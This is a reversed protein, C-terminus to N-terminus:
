VAAARLAAAILQRLEGRIQASAQALGDRAKQPAILKRESVEFAQMQRQLRQREENGDATMRSVHERIATEVQALVIPLQESLHQAILAPWARQVDGLMRRTEARLLERVKELEKLQVEVRERRVSHIMQLVGLSLLTIVVPIMVERYSRLFSLGFASLLMFVLTQYRRAMMLYEFLGQKPIEGQYKRQTILSADLIRTLREDTIQQLPVVLPPGGAEVVVKEVEHSAARLTDRLAGLDALCHRVLGARLAELWDDEVDAPIRTAITKVRLERDLTDIAALREELEKWFPSVPSSMAASFREDVGRAFDAFSRQLRARLAGAIDTLAAPAQRTQAASTRQQTLARRARIGRLEQEFALGAIATLAELARAAADAHLLDLVQGSAPSGFVRTLVGPPAAREIVLFEQASATPINARRTTVLLAREAPEMADSASADQLWVLVNASLRGTAFPVPRASSALLLSVPKSAITATLPAGDAAPRLTDGPAGLLWTVAEEPGTGDDIWVEVSLASGPACAAQLAEVQRALHPAATLPGADALLRSLESALQRVQALATAPTV